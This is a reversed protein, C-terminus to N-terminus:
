PLANGYDLIMASVHWNEVSLRAPIWLSSPFNLGRPNTFAISINRFIPALILYALCIILLYRCFSVAFRRLKKQARPQFLGRLPLKQAQSLAGKNTM